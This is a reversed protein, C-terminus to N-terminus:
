AWPDTIVPQLGYPMRRVMINPERIDLRQRNKKFAVAHWYVYQILQEDIALAAIAKPNSVCESIALAFSMVAYHSQINKNKYKVTREINASVGPTFIREAMSSVEEVSLDSLSHLAELRATYDVVHGEENKHLRFGLIRPVWPNDQIEEDAAIERLYNIYADDSRQPTEFDQKSFKMVEHPNDRDQFVRAYSGEGKKTVRTTDSTWPIPGDGYPTKMRQRTVSSPVNELLEFLRM